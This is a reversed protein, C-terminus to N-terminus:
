IIYRMFRLFHSGKELIPLVIGDIETMRNNMRDLAMSSFNTATVQCIVEVKRFCKRSAFGNTNRKCDDKIIRAM